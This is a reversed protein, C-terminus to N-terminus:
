AAIPPVVVPPISVTTTTPPVMIDVPPGGIAQALEEPAFILLKKALGAIPAGGFDIPVNLDFGPIPITVTGLIPVGTVTLSTNAVSGAISGTPPTEGVLLGDIPINFNPTITITTNATGMVPFNIHIPGVNIPITTSFPFSVPFSIPPILGGLVDGIDFQGNLFANSVTIPAQALTSLAGGINGTGLDGLLTQGVNLLGGPDLLANVPGGLGALLLQVPLGAIINASVSINPFTSLDLGLDLGFDTSVLTNFVNGVDNFFGQAMTGAPFAAAIDHALQGPVGVLAQLDPLTGTLVPNISINTGSMTLGFDIPGFFLGSIAGLINGSEIQGPFAELGTTFSNAANGLDTLITTGANSFATILGGPLNELAQVAGQITAQPNTILLQAQALLTTIKAAHVVLFQNTFPFPNALFETAIDQLNATTNTILTELPGLIGQAPTLATSLAGVPNGLSGLPVNAAGLLTQEANSLETSLYAGVGTRMAQVFQEHFAAAQASLAQFATGHEGFLAAIAASVEDEAAPLLATTSRAAASNAQNITSGLSELDTAAATVSDPALTVFSM